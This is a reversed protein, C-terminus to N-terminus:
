GGMTRIVICNILNVAGHLLMPAFISDTREYLACLVLAAPLYQAASLLAEAATLAPLYSLVHIAAFCASATVYAAARSHRHLAGFLLGRFLTEEVLPAFVAAFLLVAAFHEAMMATLADNNRNHFGPALRGILVDLLLSVALYGALWLPLRLLIARRKERFIRRNEALFRRFILLVAAACLLYYLLNVLVAAPARGLLRRLLLQLAASLLFLYFPLFCVGALVERGSPVATLRRNQM